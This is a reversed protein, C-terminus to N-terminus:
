SKDRRYLPYIAGFSLKGLIGAWRYGYDARGNDGDTVASPLRALLLIGQVLAKFRMVWRTQQPHSSNSAIAAAYAQGGAYFRRRLYSEACRSAPVFERVCAAPLWGFTKGRSQLRCFLEYDEGGGFGFASDFPVDDNLTTARRFISNCTALTVDSRKNPGFAFLEQGAPLTMERSFLQRVADSALNADEFDSVVRGFLVDHPTDRAAHAVAQMWGPECVEDDDIFALFDEHSAAVGVNRAVSINAPHAEFWRIPFPSRSAVEAVVPAASGEDSNDIVYIAPHLGDPVDQAILSTLAKRLLEARQFTCIVIALAVEKRENQLLTERPEASM